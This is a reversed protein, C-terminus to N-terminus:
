TFKFGRKEYKEKRIESLIQDSTFKFQTTKSLVDDLKNIYCRSKLNEFSIVNKCINFDFENNIFNILKSKAINVMIIQIKSFEFVGLEIFEIGNKHYKIYKNNDFLLLEHMLFCEFENRYNSKYGIDNDNRELNNCQKIIDTLKDQETFNDPTKLVIYDQILVIKNEVDDSIAIEYNGNAYYISNLGSIFDHLKSRYILGELMIDNDVMPIYIDLDSGDWQENLICQLAFSGSIIGGLEELIRKFKNTKDGFFENLRENIIRNLYHFKLSLKSIFKCTLSLNYVENINLDTLIHCIIIDKGLLEFLNSM